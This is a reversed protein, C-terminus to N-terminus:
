RNILAISILNGRMQQVSFFEGSLTNEDILRDIRAITKDPFEELTKIHDTNTKWFFKPNQANKFLLEGHYLSVIKDKASHIILKPIGVIKQIDREAVYDQNFRNANRKMSNRIFDGPMFDMALNQASSLSGDLVFADIYQQHDSVLKTAIQGGLSMGYVVVKLSDHRTLAIFDDFAAKTDKLVGKYEPKGTSKGYGRWDVVCVNYGGSVLTRIMNKYTSVNGGNGHVFFINAKPSDSEFYYAYITVGEEVDIARERCILDGMDEIEHSPKYFMKSEDYVAGGIGSTACELGTVTGNAGHKAGLATGKGGTAMGRAANKGGIGLGRAAQLFGTSIGRAAYRNIRNFTNLRRTDFHFWETHLVGNINAKAIIFSQKRIHLAEYRIYGEPLYTITHNMILAKQSDDVEIAIDEFYSDFMVASTRYASTDLRFLLSDNYIIDNIIFPESPNMPIEHVGYLNSLIVDATLETNNKSFCQREIGRMGRGLFHIHSVGQVSKSFYYHNGGRTIYVTDANDSLSSHTEHERGQISMNVFFLICIKIFVYRRKM